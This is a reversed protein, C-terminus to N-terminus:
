PEVRGSGRETVWSVVFLLALAVPLALNLMHIGTAEELPSVRWAVAVIGSGVMSALAGAETAGDWYRGLVLPGFLAVTYIGAVMELTQVLGPAILAGGLGLVGIAGVWRRSTRVEAEEDVSEERGMRPALDKLVLTTSGLLASDCTSMLVAVLAALVIGAWFPDLVTEILAPLARVQELVEMAGPDPLEPLLVRAGMGTVAFLAGLPLTAAAAIVCSRRVVTTDRTSLIRQATSQMAFHWTTSMVIWAVVVDGLAIPNWGDVVRRSIPHFWERGVEAFGAAAPPEAFGSLGGVRDLVFGVAVAVGAVILVVQITDSWHVAWNGGRWTYVIVVAASVAIAPRLTMPSLEALLSGMAYFQAALFLVLALVGLGAALLGARGGYRRDVYEPVTYLSLDRMKPALTFALLVLGPGASVLYWGASLGVYYAVAASGLTSGAGIVTALLSASTVWTGHERGSLLYDDLTRVKLRGFIEGLLLLGAFYAAFVIWLTM